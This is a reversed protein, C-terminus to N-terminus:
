RAECWPSRNGAGAGISVRVEVPVVRGASDTVEYACAQVRKAESVVYREGEAPTITFIIRCLSFSNPTPVALGKVFTVGLGRTRVDTIAGLTIPEGAPVAVSAPADPIREVMQRVSCDENNRYVFLMADQTWATSVTAMARGPPATYVPMRLATCATLAISALALGLFQMHRSGPFRDAKV